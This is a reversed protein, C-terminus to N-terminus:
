LSVSIEFDLRKSVISYSHRLHHKLVPNELLRFFFSVGSVILTDELMEYRRTM